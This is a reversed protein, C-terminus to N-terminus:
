IKELVYIINWNLINILAELSALSPNLIDNFIYSISMGDNWFDKLIPVKTISM